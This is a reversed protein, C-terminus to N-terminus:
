GTQHACRPAIKRIVIEYHFIPALAADWPLRRIDAALWPLRSHGTALRIAQASEGAEHLSRVRDFMLERMDRGAMRTCASGNAGSETVLTPPNSGSGTPAPIGALEAEITKRLNQILHFRDAVQRALPM